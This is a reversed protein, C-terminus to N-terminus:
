PRNEINVVRTLTVTEGQEQVQLAIVLQGHQADLASYSFQCSSVGDLLLAATAGGPASVPQSTQIAYGSYRQIAGGVCIYSAAQTVVYFRSAVSALAFQFAPSMTLNNGSIGVSVSTPTIVHSGAPVLAGTSVNGYVNVGASGMAATNGIVLRAGAPLTVMASAYLVEFLDDPASFDLAAPESSDALKRYRGWTQVPVWEIANGGSIRISYPLALRLDRALHQLANDTKSVLAARRTTDVYGLMQDGVMTSALVAVVGTLAIVIVLEVLTFGSAVDAAPLKM